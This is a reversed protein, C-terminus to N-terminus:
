KENQKIEERLKMWLKGHINQGTHDLGWGWFYDDKSDEVIDRDGTELLKKRVHPHQSLKARVIEEMVAVKRSDWDVAQRDKYQQSLIKSDYPSAANFILERVEDDNEFKKFQYAHESTKFKRGWINVEYASFNSFCKWGGGLFLIKDEKEM